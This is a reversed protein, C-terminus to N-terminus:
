VDSLKLSADGFSDVDPMAHRHAVCGDSELDRRWAEGMRTALDDRRDRGIVVYRWPKTHHPAPALCALELVRAIVDDPVARADLQRLSRRTAIAELADM